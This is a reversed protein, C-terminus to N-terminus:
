ESPLRSARSSRRVDNTEFCAKALDSRCRRESSSFRERKLRGLVDSLPEGAYTLQAVMSVVSAGEIEHMGFSSTDWDGEFSADLKVASALSSTRFRHSPAHTWAMQLLGRATKEDLSIADDVVLGNVSMWAAFVLAFYADVLSTKSRQLM